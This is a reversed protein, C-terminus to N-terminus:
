FEKINKENTRTFKQEYIKLSRSKCVKKTEKKVEPTVVPSNEPTVRGSYITKIEKILAENMGLLGLIVFPKIQQM